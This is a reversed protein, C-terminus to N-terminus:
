RRALRGVMAGLALVGLGLVGWLLWPRLRADRAARASDAAADADVSFPGLTARGFRPAEAALDPVLTAVPLAGDAIVHGGARVRWPQTGQGAFVLSAPRFHGVLTLGALPPLPARADVVLRLVRVDRGMPLPPSESATLGERVIRHFVVPRDDRWVWAGAAGSPGRAGATKADATGVQLVGPVVRTGGEIRLEVDDLPVDAGFDFVIARADTPDAKGSAAIAAVAALGAAAPESQEVLAHAALGPPAAAPDFWTVRVFRGAGAPLSVRRQELRTAGASGAMSVLMGSGAPRWVVLDVSSDLRLGANVDPTGDWAFELSRVASPVGPAREGTDVIWGPSVTGAPLATGPRRRVEIRDGQVVVDVPSEGTPISTTTGTPIGTTIGGAATRGTARPLLPYLPLAASRKAVSQRARDPELRAHPVREGAADVVRLDRLRSASARYADTGLPVAIFAGPRELQLTAVERLVPEDTSPAANGAGCATSAALTALLLIPRVRRTVSRM